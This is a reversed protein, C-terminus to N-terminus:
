SLPGPYGEGLLAPDDNALNRLLELHFYDVMTSSASLFKQGFAERGSDIEKRLAAYLNRQERGSKVAAAAYLRLRAIEVAAFHQARLHLQQDEPSLESWKEPRPKRAAHAQLAAGAAQALLELAAAEAAGSVCLLAVAQGNALVPFVGIRDEVTPFFDRLPGSLEIAGAPAAADPLPIELARFRDAAASEVGRVCRGKLHEGDVSLVAACQCFKLSSEALATAVQDLGGAERLRGMALNLEGALECRAERRSRASAEALSAAIEAQLAAEVERIFAFHDEIKKPLNPSPAASAM